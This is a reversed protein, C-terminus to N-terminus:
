EQVQSGALPVWCVIHNLMKTDHVERIPLWDQIM